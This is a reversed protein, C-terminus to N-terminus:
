AKYRPRRRLRKWCICRRSRRACRFFNAPTITWSFCPSWGSILVAAKPKWNIGVAAFDEWRLPFDKRQRFLQRVDAEENKSALALLFGQRALERLQEQVEVHPSVGGIGDEGLVGRYLTNDCDLVLAKLSPFFMAPLHHMGLDRAIELCAVNSLRTGSFEELRVDQAADGLPALIEELDCVLANINELAAAPLGYCAVIVRGKAHGSCASIRNRLWDPFNPVKYRSVDLWFIHADASSLAQVSALSDDYASYVFKPSLGSQALFIPLVSAVLEFSHNRHVAITIEKQAPPVPYALLATRSLHPAYLPNM